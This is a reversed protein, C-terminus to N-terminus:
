IRDKALKVLKEEIDELYGNVRCGAANKHGGGGFTMAIDCADVPDKTRISMKFNREGVQSLAYAVKVRDVDILESVIGETDDCTTNTAAFDDAMFRMVAIQNNEFFKVNALARRKLNFKDLSISRYVDYITGSADFDYKLLEYAIEHTRKTVNSYSFCGSDTVIGCFLLKAVNEDIAKMGKLLEFVIEACASADGDVYCLSAFREFSKHHDIAIQAKASLFSKMCQGLRDISSSDIGIALEHVRKQPFTIEESKYLCKYKDPVTSDCYAAVNKGKNKLAVYLALMSGLADGDPKTHCYLAIDNARNIRKAIEQLIDNNM